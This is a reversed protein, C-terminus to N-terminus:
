RFKHAQKGFTDVIWHQVDPDSQIARIMAGKQDGWVHVRVETNEGGGGVYGGSAYGRHMAELRSPGIRATAPASFVYEGRHVVGAVNWPSGEGTYGGAAYGVAGKVSSIAGAVAATTIAAGPAATAGGILVSLATLIPIAVLAYLIATLIMSIFSALLAVGFQAFAQSANKTGMILGTLAGAMGEIGQQIVRFAGSTLTTALKGWQQQVQDLNLNYEGKWTGKAKNKDIEQENRALKWSAGEKEQEAREREEPTLQELEQRKELKEIIRELLADQQELNQVIRKDREEGMISSDSEILARQQELRSLGLADQQDIIRRWKEASARAAELRKITAAEVLETYRDEALQGAQLEQQYLAIRRQFESEYDAQRKGTGDAVAKELERELRGQEDKVVSANYEDLAREDEVQQKHKEVADKVRAAEIARLENTQSQALAAEAKDKEGPRLVGSSERAMKTIEEREKEYRLHIEGEERKLGELADVRVKAELEALQNVGQVRTDGLAQPGTLKKEVWEQIEKMSAEPRRKEYRAPPTWGLKGMSYASPQEAEVMETPEQGLDGSSTKYLKKKGTLYDTYLNAAGATMRGHQLLTNFEGLMRAQKSLGEMQEKQADTAAKTEQSYHRWLLAGAGVAAGIVGLIPALEGLAVGTLKATTRLTMLAMRGTMIGQALMPFHTGGLMIMMGELGHFGERALLSTERLHRLSEASNNAAAPLAAIGSTAQAFFSSLAEGAQGTDANITYTIGIDM